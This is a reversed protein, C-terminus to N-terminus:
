GPGLSGAEVRVDPAPPYEVAAASCWRAAYSPSERTRRATNWLHGVIAGERM